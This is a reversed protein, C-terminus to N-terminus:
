VMYSTLIDPSWVQVGFPPRYRRVFTEGYLPGVRSPGVALDNQVVSKLYESGVPYKIKDIRGKGKGSPFPPEGLPDRPAVVDLRNSAGGIQGLDSTASSDGGICLSSFRGQGM